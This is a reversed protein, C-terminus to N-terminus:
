VMILHAELRVVVLFVEAVGAVVEADPAAPACSPTAVGAAAVAGPAALASSSTAV